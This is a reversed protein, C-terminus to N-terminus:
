GAALKRVADDAMAKPSKGLAIARQARGLLVSGANAVKTTVERLATLQTYDQQAFQHSAQAHLTLMGADMGSLYGPASLIAHLSRKDGSTVLGRVIDIRANPEMAKVHARMESAVAIGTPTAAHPDHIAESVRKELVQTIGNLRKVAQDM